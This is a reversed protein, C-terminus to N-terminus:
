IRGRYGTARRQQRGARGSSTRTPETTRPTRPPRTTQHPPAGLPAATRPGRNWRITPFNPSTDSYTQPGTVHVHTDHGGATYPHWGETDTWIRDKFIVQTIGLPAAHSALWSAQETLQEDPGGIDIADGFSHESLTDTGAINRVVHTGMNTTNPWRSFLEYYVRQIEPAVESASPLREPHPDEIPVRGTRVPQFSSPGSYPTPGGPSTPYGGGAFGGVGPSGPLGPLQGGPAQLLRGLGGGIGTLDGFSVPQGSMGTALLDQLPSEAQPVGDPLEPLGETGPLALSGQATRLLDALSAM